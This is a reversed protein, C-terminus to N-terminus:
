EALSLRRVYDLPTSVDSERAVGRHAQLRVFDQVASRYDELEELNARSEDGDEEAASALRAREEDAAV